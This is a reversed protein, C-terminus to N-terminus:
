QYTHFQLASSLCSLRIIFDINKEILLSKLFLFYSALYNTQIHSALYNKELIFYFKTNLAPTYPFCLAALQKTIELLEPNESIQKRYSFFVTKGIDVLRSLYNDPESYADMKREGYGVINICWDAVADKLLDSSEELFDQLKSFQFVAREIDEKAKKLIKVQKKTNRPLFKIEDKLKPM